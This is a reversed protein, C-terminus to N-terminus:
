TFGFAGSFFYTHLTKEDYPVTSAVGVGIGDEKDRLDETETESFM